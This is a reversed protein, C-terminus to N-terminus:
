DYVVEINNLYVSLEDVAGRIVDRERSKAAVELSAGLTTIRDFGYSAGTGKMRHGLIRVTEFDELRLADHISRIDQQKDKLFEPILDALDPDAHLLIKDDHILIKDIQQPIVHEIAAPAGACIQNIVATLDNKKIPKPLYASCGALLCKDADEKLAYATLAVIPTPTKQKTSEWARIQKTATYGDMIPMQMDMLVLDFRRSKFKEVAVQGNEAIDLRHSTKKLFSQILLQNDEYDDVVLIDLPRVKGIDSEELPSRPEEPKATFKGMAELIAQKLESQKVPKVLHRVALSRARAAEVNGNDSTLLMITRSAFSGQKRFHEAVRFGDMGPMRSDLLILDYPKGEALASELCSIGAHGDEAETVLGGWQSLMEKLIRRSTANDDIILTRLGSMEKLPMRTPRLRAVPVGLRVTFFFTSGQGPESEVWITGGMLEIIRKSITLGLGSGGFKRTTSTDAQTFSEFIAKQKERSIGIGTDSISFLLEIPDPRGPHGDATRKEAREEELGRQMVRVDLNVEGKQTFKVANGILNLLIQQLRLTDGYVVAPADISVHSTLELGKEHARVAMIECIREMVEITTFETIDLSLNGSEIKSFDLIDNIVNLLNEGSSKFVQVYRQQEQNMPTDALLEAMGLIANMPTRIEHSMNALFKSKAQNALEAELALTQSRAIAQELDQNARELERNTERLKEEVARRESIDRSVGLIGVVQGEPDRIFTAKVETWVISGDKHSGALELTRYRYIDVPQRSERMAEEAFAKSAVELSSPVLMQAMGLAMAEEVSFGTLQTVSPSMYTFNLKMDTTWIFDSANEALLRYRRESEIMAEEAKVRETINRAVAQFGEIRNDNLVLHVYQGLWLAEGSKTVVPLQQYTDLKKELFQNEYFKGVRRRYDPRILELYNKELFEEETYGLTSLAIANAFTFRGTADAKYIFDKANDVIYRYREESESLAEKAKVAEEAIRFAYIRERENDALSARLKKTLLRQESMDVFTELLRPKGDLTVQTVTKLVSIRKGDTRLLLRESNDIKQQLDTIPCAGQEAPCIFNHCVKGVLEELAIGILHCAAPNAELVTHTEPDIVVVGSQIANQIVELRTKSEVLEQERKKRETIDTSVVLVKKTEGPASLPCLQNVLHVLLGEDTQAAIEIEQQEDREFVLEM